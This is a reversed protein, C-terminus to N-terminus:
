WLLDSPWVLFNDAELFAFCACVSFVCVCGLCQPWLNLSTIALQSGRSNISCISKGCESMAVNRFTSSQSSPMNPLNSATYAYIGSNLDRTFCLLQSHSDAGTIDTRPSPSLLIRLAQKDLWDLQMLQSWIWHFTRDWIIFHFGIFLVTINVRTDMHVQEYM